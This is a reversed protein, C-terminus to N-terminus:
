GLKAAKLEEEEEGLSGRLIGGLPDGGGDVSRPPMRAARPCTLRTSFLTCIQDMKIKSTM